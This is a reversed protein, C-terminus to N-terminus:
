TEAALANSTTARSSAAPPSAPSRTSTPPRAVSLDVARPPGGVAHGEPMAGRPGIAVSNATRGVGNVQGYCAALTLEIAQRAPTPLMCAVVELAKAASVHDERNRTIEPGFSRKFWALLTWDQGAIGPQRSLAPRAADNGARSLRCRSEAAEAGARDHGRQIGHYRGKTRWFKM